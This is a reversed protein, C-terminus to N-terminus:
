KVVRSGTEWEFMLQAFLNHADKLYGLVENYRNVDLKLLNSGERIGQGNLYSSSNFFHHFLHAAKGVEGLRENRIGVAGTGLSKVDEIEDWEPSKEPIILSREVQGVAETVHSESYPNKFGIRLHNEAESSPNAQKSYERSIYFGSLRNQRELEGLKFFLKSFARDLANADAHFINM